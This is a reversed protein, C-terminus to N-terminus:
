LSAKFFPKLKLIKGKPEVISSEVPNPIERSSSVSLFSIWLITVKMAFPSPFFSSKFCM